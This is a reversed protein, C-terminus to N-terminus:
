REGQFMQDMLLPIEERRERLPPIIITLRISVTTSIKAFGSKAIATQMDINTAALVRVDVRSSSAGLVASPDIRYSTFLKAQM